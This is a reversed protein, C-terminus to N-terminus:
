WVRYWYRPEITFVPCGVRRSEDQEEAVDALLSTASREKELMSGSARRLYSADGLGADAEDELVAHLLIELAHAFYVLDQYSAAFFVADDRLGKELYNRLLQHLFLHTNTCTRWLAFDLSRRLSVESEVGLVIGKELLVDLEQQTDANFVVLWM